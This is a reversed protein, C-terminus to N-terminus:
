IVLDPYVPSSPNSIEMLFSSQVWNGWIKNKDCIFSNKNKFYQVFVLNYKNTNLFSEIKYKNLQYLFILIILLLIIFM